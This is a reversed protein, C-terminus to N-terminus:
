RVVARAAGVLRAAPKVLLRDLLSTDDASGVAVLLGRSAMAVTRALSDTLLQTATQDARVDWLAVSTDWAVDRAAAISWNAVIDAVTAVHLDVDRVDPPEFGERISQEATDLLADVKQYDAHHSGDTPATALETCTSVVAIPLDHNIHANMGALAFQIPEIDTNTRSTLLPAWAVPMGSPPGSLSDVAAFYLNAFVVDLESVFAPDGFSGQKVQQDVDQTVQLYMRNFCAVGDGAPLAAQISEM